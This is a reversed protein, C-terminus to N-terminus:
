ILSGRARFIRTLRPALQAESGRLVLWSPSRGIAIRQRSSRSIGAIHIDAIANATSSLPPRVLPLGSRFPMPGHM